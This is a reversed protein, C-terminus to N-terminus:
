TISIRVHNKTVSVCLCSIISFVDLCIMLVGFSTTADGYM